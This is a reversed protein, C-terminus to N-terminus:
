VGENTGITLLFASDAVAEVGHLLNREMVVLQGSQLEAIRDPTRLRVHGNTVYVSTPGAARHDAIIAGARMVVLVMRLDANRVLTRATHGTRAYSDEDRLERDIAPLDFEISGEISEPEAM